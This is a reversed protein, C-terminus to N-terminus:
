LLDCIAMQKSCIYLMRVLNGTVTYHTSINATSLNKRLQCALRCERIIIVVRFKMHSARAGCICMAFILIKLSALKKMSEHFIIGVFM